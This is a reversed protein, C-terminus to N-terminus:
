KSYKLEELSKIVEFTPYMGIIDCVIKNQCNKDIVTKFAYMFADAEGDTISQSKKTRSVRIDLTYGNDQLYKLINEVVEITDKKNYKKIGRKTHFQKLKIPQYTRIREYSSEFGCGLYFRMGLANLKGSNIGSAIPAEQAVFSDESVLYYQYKGYFEQWLNDISWCMMMFDHHDGSRMQDLIIKKDKTNIIAIGFAALSPDLGIYYNIM